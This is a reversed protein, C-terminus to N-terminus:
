ARDHLQLSYHMLEVREGSPAVGPESGGQEFGAASLVRQSGVNDLVTRAALTALGSARAFEAALALASVAYGRGRAEPHLWFGVEARDVAVDFLVLSGAFADSEAEAIALVALDGRALGPGADREIMRRVSEPTYEPEPLHAYRRVDADASGTAYAAADADRLPRLRVREDEVPLRTQDLM